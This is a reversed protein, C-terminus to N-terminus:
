SITVTVITTQGYIYLSGGTDVALPIEMHASLQDGAAHGRSRWM